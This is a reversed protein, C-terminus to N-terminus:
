YAGGEIFLFTCDLISQVKAVRTRFFFIVEL